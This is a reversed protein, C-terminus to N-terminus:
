YKSFIAQATLHGDSPAAAELADDADGGYGIVEISYFTPLPQAAPAGRQRQVTEDAASAMAGTTDSAAAIAALNPTAAQPVGTATGGASINDAGIVHLAAINLDGVSRIGADGADVTGEPAILDLRSTVAGSRAADLVGIGSGTQLASANLLVNADNDLVFRLAPAVARTKSGAGATIDGYSTWMVLDGGQLTFVRSNALAIDGHSMMRVAGGKQTVVGNQGGSHGLEDILIQGYPALVTIDGGARTTIPNGYFNVIGERGREEPFLSAIAEYGRRYSGYRPNDPDNVDIGTEKLETFYVDLLFPRRREVPLAEFAAVMDADSLPEGYDSGQEAMWARLEPLYTRVVGQTNNPDLYTAAFAEYETGGGVGAVLTLSAGLNKLALNSINVTSSSGGGLTTALTTINGASTISGIPKVVLNEGAEVWLSGEGLITVTPAVIDGVAEVLSLDSGQNHQVTLTLYHIDDGSRIWASKPLDIRLSLPYRGDLSGELTYIHVPVADGRHLPVTGRGYNTSAGHFDSSQVILNNSGTRFPAITTRLYEPAVDMMLIPTDSSFSGAALLDLTGVPSPALRFAHNTNSTYYALLDIDGQLSAFKVTGPLFLYDRAVHATTIPTATLSMRQYIPRATNNWALDAGAYPNNYYLLDGSISVADVATRDTYSFFFSSRGLLGGVINPTIVPIIMPDVIAEIEVDGRAQLSLSADMLAFLAHIDKLVYDSAAGSTVATGTRRQYSQRDSTIAGGAVIAAEGRGLMYVGGYIDDGAHISLDGGGRVVVEGSLVPSGVAATQQGTTPLAVALDHIHRGATIAVNGGGLAGIGQEFNAFVVSWSTQEAVTMQSTSSGNSTDAYGYRWLWGTVFDQTLPATIDRGATITVNGGNVPYDGVRSGRIFGAEDAIRQGATYIVSKTDTLILDRRARVAIDGTGTRILKGAALTIDGGSEFALDWSRGALLAGTSAIATSFGDSISGNVFLNGGASFTLAGPAAEAGYRHDHLDLDNTITLDGTSAARIGAQIEAQANGLRAHIAGANDMWTAAEALMAAYDATGVTGAASYDYAQEGRVILERATITAGLQTVALDDGTRPATVVVSGGGSAGGTAAIVAGSAIGVSGGAATIEVRGSQAPFDEGINDLASAEIRATGGITVGDGGTLRVTGGDSDATTGNALIAGNVTVRGADSQLLVDHATIAEGAGLTIAQNRLRISREADFGGDNLAANLGTWDALTAADLVLSGGAYGEAAGGFFTGALTARGQTATIEIRGADGGQASGSVDLVAGGAVTVDGADATLRLTGGPAVKVIDYFTTATGRALLRAHDGLVLDGTTAQAEFIGAPLSVLTDLTVETGTVLLRGGAEAPEQDTGRGGSVIVAGSSAIRYDSAKGATLLDTALTLPAEVTLSGVGTATVRDGVGTVTAFGDIRSAGPGLVLSEAHLALAGTGSAGSGAAVDFTNRLDLERATITVTDGEGGFGQLGAADFILSELGPQGNEDRGGLTVTGYFDISGYSRLLLSRSAGLAELTAESLVLGGTGDPADGISVQSSSLDLQPTDLLTTAGTEVSRTGDLIMSGTAFLVVDDGIVLRGSGTTTRTRSTAIRDGTSLRLLAGNDADAQIGTAAFLLPTTDASVAGEARIVSGAAIDITGKAALILEPLVLASAADNAIYIDTASVNVQTGAAAQSRTGGLLLSGVGFNSFQTSDLVLYSADPAEQGSGLLAIRLAAIDVNGLLGGEEAGFRGTGNLALTGTAALTLTGADAPLRPTVIGAASALDAAYDNFRIDTYDSYQRVVAQPMVLFLSKASDQVSTGAVLRYGTALQAGDLRTATVSASADYGTSLMRIAVGGELLAYHAPLLTYVGDALGSVGSLYVSDGVGFGSSSFGGSGYVPATHSTYGPLLAFMGATNLIDSSGGNGPIFEYAYLDGGGSLDVVAGAQVDVEPGGLTIAKAPAYGAESYGTVLGATATGLPVVRGELSVSTLSGPALALSRTAELNIKGQPARLVGAQVIDPARVTLTEGFSYPVPAASGNGLFTVSQGSQLLFGEHNDARLQSATTVYTQASELVLAGPSQLRGAMWSSTGMTLRIDGTSVFRAEAFAGLGNGGLDLTQYFDILGANVTLQGLLSPSASPIDPSPTDYNGEGPFAGFRVYPAAILIEAEAPAAAAIGLVPTNFTLSRGAELVLSGDFAVQRPSSFVLRDAGSAQLAGTYVALTGAWAEPIPTSAEVTPFLAEGTARNTLRDTLLLGAVSTLSSAYHGASVSVLGGAASASGPAADIRGALYGGSFNSVSLSGADSGVTQAVYASRSGLLGGKTRNLDATGVVGSVDIVSGLDTFLYVRQGLLPAAVTLSVSGAAEVSRVPVSNGDLTTKVYGPALLRADAGLKLAVGSSGDRIGLKISGGPTSLIGNVFLNRATYLSISSESDMLIQAGSEVILNGTLASTANIESDTTVLRGSTDRLGNALNINMPSRLIEPLYDVTLVSGLDGGTPLSWAAAGLIYSLTLPEIVTGATVILDGAAGIAYSAFGNQRFFDPSLYLMDTASVGTEEPPDDTITIARSAGLSLSGGAGLAYGRLEAQMVDFVGQLTSPVWSFGRGQDPLIDNQLLISGANGSTVKGATTLRGGGSVDIVSDAGLILDNVTKLSVSGGHIALPTTVSMGGLRENIWLGSVDIVAGEGLRIWPREEETLARWDISASTVEYYGKPLNALLSVSGGPSVILGDIQAHSGTFSFSGFAGLNVTVGPEIFLDGGGIGSVLNVIGFTHGDFWRAPLLLSGALDADPLMGPEFGAPLVATEDSITINRGRARGLTDTYGVALTAAQPLQKWAQQPTRSTTYRERQYRGTTTEAVLAGELAVFYPRMGPGYQNAIESTNNPGVRPGIILSGANKGELYGQEFRRYTDYIGAYVINPSATAIDYVHGDAGLLRTSTVYGDLYRLSGGSLDILSGPRTVLTGGDLRLTGGGTMLEEVGYEILGYYGSLDALTTGRRLDVKVKKGRLPGERLLPADKLEDLRLEGTITNREMAVEVEQLGALWIEAGDALWIFSPDNAATANADNTRAFLNVTAGPAYIRADEEMLITQGILDIRSPRYQSAMATGASDDPTVALLSGEALTIDGFVTPWVWWLTNNAAGDGALLTISGNAKSSTTAALVGDNRISKGTITINGRDSSVLGTNTAMGGLQVAARVGRLDPDTRDEDHGNLWNRSIWVREGAAMVVQGDPASIEGANAVNHGILYVAGEGNSVIKAGAQVFVGDDPAHVGTGGDTGFTYLRQDDFAIGLRFAENRAEVTAGRFDLSSALLTHVNVQSSGGFIVGNRNVIYVQGEAKIQGLIRSPSASAGTVRNLAIWEGADAGGATQDFYLTTEKGVNLSEWTLIAKQQEQKVTVLARNGEVTEVPAAAGLWLGSGPTAGPMVVLGGPKMGNPVTSVAAQAASRAAAQAAQMAQIAQTTRALADRSRQAAAAQQEQALTQAAPGNESGPSTRAGGGRLINRAEVPLPMWLAVSVTFAVSLYFLHLLLPKKM